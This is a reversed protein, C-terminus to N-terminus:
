DRRAVIADQDGFGRDAYRLITFGASLSKVIHDPMQFTTQYWDPLIDKLKASRRVVIGRRRIKESIDLAKWVQESHITLLLLGGPRLVRHFESTWPRQHEDDLHTYVSIAYLFDLTAGEYPLPPMEGNATFSADPINARCWRISEADVDSGHWKVQPYRQCLWMLTRGCGCGFDLVNRFDKVGNGSDLLVREINDATQKGVRFFERADVSEGV